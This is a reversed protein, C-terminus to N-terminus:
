VWMMLKGITIFVIISSVLDLSVLILLLYFVKIAATVADAVLGPASQWTGLGISPIKAGTNLEFFKIEEAM